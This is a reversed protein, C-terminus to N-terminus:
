DQPPTDGGDWALGPATGEAHPRPVAGGLGAARRTEGPASSASVRERRGAPHPHFRAPREREQRDRGSEGPPALLPTRPARALDTTDGRPEETGRLTGRGGDRGLKLRVPNGNGSMDVRVGRRGRGAGECNGIEELAAMAELRRRM